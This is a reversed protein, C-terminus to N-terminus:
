GILVTCSYMLLLIFRQPDLEMNLRHDTAEEFGPFRENIFYNRRLFILSMSPLPFDLIEEEYFYGTFTSQPLQKNKQPGRLIERRLKRRSTTV